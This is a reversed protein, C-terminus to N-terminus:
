KETDAEHEIATVEKRHTLYFIAGILSWFLSALYGLLSLAIAMAGPVGVQGFMNAYM